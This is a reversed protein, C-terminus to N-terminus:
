HRHGESLEDVPLPFMWSPTPTVGSAKTIAVCPADHNPKDSLRSTAYHPVITILTCPILGNMAFPCRMLIGRAVLTRILVGMTKMGLTGSTLKFPLFECVYRPTGETCRGVNTHHSHYHHRLVRHGQVLACSLDYCRDSCVEMELGFDSILAKGHQQLLLAREV